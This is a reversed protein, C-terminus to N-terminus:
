QLHYGKPTEHLMKEQFAQIREIASGCSLYNPINELAFHLSKTFINADSDSLNQSCYRNKTILKNMGKGVVGYSLLGMVGPCQDSRMTLSMGVDEFDGELKFSGMKSLELVAGKGTPRALPHCKPLNKEADLDNYLAGLNHKNKYQYNFNARLKRCLEEITTDYTVDKAFVTLYSFMNGTALDNRTCFPRSDICTGVGMVDFKNNYAAACLIMDAWMADTLGNCKKTKENYCMFDTVNSTAKAAKAKAFYHLKSLDRPMLKTFEGNLLNMKHIDKRFVDYRADFFVPIECDVKGKKLADFLFMLYGGDATGHNINLVIYEDNAGISALAQDLPLSHESAMYKLNEDLTDFKPIDFVPIKNNSRYFFKDDTSVHLAPVWKILNELSSDLTQKNSIRVGFQLMSRNINDFHELPRVARKLSM